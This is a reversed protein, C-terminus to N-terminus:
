RSPLTPRTPRTRRPNPSCRPTSAGLTSIRIPVAKARCWRHTPYMYDSEIVGDCDGGRQPTVQARGCPWRLREFFVTRTSRRADDGHARRGHHDARRQPASSPPTPPACSPRGLAGLPPPSAGETAVGWWVNRFTSCSRSIRGGVLRLRVMEVSAREDVRCTTVSTTTPRTPARRSVPHVRRHCRGTPAPRTTPAGFFRLTSTTRRRRAGTTRPRRGSCTAPCM